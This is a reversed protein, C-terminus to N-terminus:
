HKRDKSIKWLKPLHWQRLSFSWMANAESKRTGFPIYCRLGKAFLTDFYLILFFFFFQSDQWSKRLWLDWAEDSCACAWRFSQLTKSRIAPVWCALLGFCAAPLRLPSCLLEAASLISDQKRRPVCSKHALLVKERPFHIFHQGDIQLTSNWAFQLSGESECNKGKCARGQLRLLRRWSCPANIVCIFHGETMGNFTIVTLLFLLLCSYLQWPM